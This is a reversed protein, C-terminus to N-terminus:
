KPNGQYYNYNINNGAPAYYGPANGFPQSNPMLGFNQADSPPGFNQNVPPTFNPPYNYTPGGFYANNGGQPHVFVNGGQYDNHRLRFGASENSGEFLQNPAQSLYLRARRSFRTFYTMGLGYIVFWFMMIFIYTANFDISIMSVNFIIMSAIGLFIWLWAFSLSWTAYRTISERSGDRSAKLALYAPPWCTTSMLVQILTLYIPIPIIVAIVIAFILAIASISITIWGQTSLVKPLDQINM